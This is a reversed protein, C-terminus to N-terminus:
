FGRRYYYLQTLFKFVEAAVMVLLVLNILLYPSSMLRFFSVSMFQGPAVHRVLSAVIAYTVLLGAGTSLFLYANRYGRFTILTDREDAPQHRAAIALVVQFVVEIVIIAIVTMTLRAVAAGDFDTEGFDRFSAAFYGGYVLMVAVLSGFISKEQYSLDM